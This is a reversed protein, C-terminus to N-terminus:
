GLDRREGEAVPPDAKHPTPSSNDGHKKNEVNLSLLMAIGYPLKSKKAM